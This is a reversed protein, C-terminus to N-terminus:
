TALDRLWFAVEIVERRRGMMSRWLAMAVKEVEPERAAESRVVGGVYSGWVEL